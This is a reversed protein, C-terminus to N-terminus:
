CRLLATSDKGDSVRSVGATFRRSNMVSRPLVAAAHGSAARACIDPFTCRIRPMSSGGDSNIRALSTISHVFAVEDRQEAARRSPRERRPRLLRRSQHDAKDATSREITGGTMYGRKTLAEALRAVYLALVHRHLVM